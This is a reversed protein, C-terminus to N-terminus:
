GRSTGHVPESSRAAALRRKKRREGYWMVALFLGLVLAALAGGLKMVNGAFVVYGESDPDYHFCFLLIRDVTSGIKGESAELLGLRLDQRKFDIGYLYRSITGDEALLMVVAPHAYEDREADYFYRFGVAEALKQIQDEEGVMFTWSSEEVPKGLENLYNVKKAYALEHTESPDIGVTVMRFEDGPTWDLKSVASSLGNFVLNCLMPCEYYGLTLVVPKGHNFFEGLTVQRGDDSTFVLDMPIKRGLHEDVNIRDLKEDNQKVVQSAGTSRLCFLVFLAIIIRSLDIYYVSTRSTEPM